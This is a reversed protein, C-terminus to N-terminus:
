VALSSLYDKVEKTKALKLATGELNRYSSMGETVYAELKTDAGNEVLFKVISDIDKKEFSNFGFGNETQAFCYPCSLNCTAAIPLIITEFKEKKTNIKKIKSPSPAIAVKDNVFDFLLKNEPNEVLIEHGNKKFDTLFSLLAQDKIPYIQLTETHLFLTVDNSINILHIHNKELKNKKM